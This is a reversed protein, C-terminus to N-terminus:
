FDFWGGVLGSPLEYGPIESDTNTNLYIKPNRKPPVPPHDGSTTGGTGSQPKGTGSTNLPWPASPVSNYQARKNAHSRKHFNENQTGRLPHKSDLSARRFGDCVFFSLFPSSTPKQIKDKARGTGCIRGEILRQNHQLRGFLCLLLSPPSYTPTKKKNEFHM